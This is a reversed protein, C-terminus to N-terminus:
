FTINLGLTFARAPMYENYSIGSYNAQPNLGQRAKIMFVNETSINARVNELSWSRVLAKPLNYSFNLSRLNLYDGSVLWRTSYSQGINTAHTANANLQPVSTVDGPNQWANLVDAHNSRGYNSNSMMDRYNLDLLKAGLSYSFVSGLEFAKYSLNINFGGYVKPVASGSHDFKANNFSNTLLQGDKEVITRQVAATYSGDAGALDTDLYFLGEGNDPNVGYWQRLWFEYRSHGEMYKKSGDIIGNERNEEPLRTIKNNIFTTNSGITVRWDRNQFATYHLDIEVGRNVVRGINRTVSKVGTSSPLSVDFLLDKSSKEFLEISGTLKNFLGFEVAIDSSIQTEWILDTNALSSFFAGAEDRNNIGLTYLTQSPFYNQTNTTTGRVLIADNGTQGWSARVKLNDLWSYQKFFDEESARWSVGVSYFNGWRNDKSFRSSGDRRYSASLYYKDLYDYNLRSFYGEKRYGREYSTLTSINVFNTLEYIGDVIEGTKMANFYEYKYDYNEHGLLVDFNHNGITKAYTLLQNLTQTVTRTSRVTMRGPGATGDGVKTNEYGKYRIDSNEIGYNATLNLGELLTLTLYSRGVLNTRTYVRSNWKTEAVADRGADSLRGGDYDYVYRSPDTTPNGESDLYAGTQLDHKHVPYIPAMNRVFRTLNNFAGSNDATANSTNSASRTAGLNLGAKVYKSPTTNYNLRASYREFDTRIMYGKDNLYGVSAYTDSKENKGNWGLVYEQRHGTRYAADEWDLDDGWKLDKANPNLRGDTGVIDNNAIGIYPNYRLTGAIENSARLSATEPDIGSSVLANRLMQWQVPYYDYINVRAYDKYAPNSWGQSMNLTLGEKGASGRKTTILIVGNGASSGYLSTSAADKLVTVSEIDAPNLESINGNYVAGDVVYLPANSANVSGFGRIRIEPSEGPQGLASTVQIGSAGGELASTVTTIPRVEFDRSSVSSASGTFSSRKATGYAVVIIDDLVQMDASLLVRMNAQAPLEVTTMGIYSFRLISNPEVELSFRGDIDTITGNTTGKVVVSGGIVPENDEAGFVTGTVHLRQAMLCQLGLFVLLFSFTIKQRM